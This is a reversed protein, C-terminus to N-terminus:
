FINFGSNEYHFNLSKKHIASSVYGASGIVIFHFFVMDGRITLGAVILEIRTM